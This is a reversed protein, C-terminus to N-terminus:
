SSAGASNECLVNLPKPQLRKCAIEGRKGSPATPTPPYDLTRVPAEEAATFKNVGVITKDGSQITKTAKSFSEGVLTQVTNERLASIMGGATEVEQMVKWAEQAIQGTVTEVYGSGAAADGVAGISSEEQLVIHANRAIRRAFGDPVGLASSFPLASISDAGGVGAAFIATTTRLMNVNPDNKSMMALSTEVDLQLRTPTVDMAEQLQQWVLRAARLKAITLFQDANASLILSLQPWINALEAGGQELLRLQAIIAALAFGLEQAASAGAEHYIRGDASFVIGRHGASQSQKLFGAMREAITSEDASNGTLAFGGIPDLCFSLDCRTLDLNREQYIELLASAVQRGRWGADLRLSILDLEVDKMLRKFDQKTTAPVGFSGATVAGPLVVCIGTAGNLLDDLIQQNAAAIDPIDVRQMIKWPATNAPKPSSLNPFAQDPTEYIPQISIGDRTKTILQDINDAKLTTQAQVLWESESVGPFDAALTLKTM